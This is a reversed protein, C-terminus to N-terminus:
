PLLKKTVIAAFVPGLVWQIGRCAVPGRFALVAYLMETVLLHVTEHLDPWFGVSGGM